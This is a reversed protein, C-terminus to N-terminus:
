TSQKETVSLHGQVKTDVAFLESSSDIGHSSRGIVPWIHCRQYVVIVAVHVRSVHFRFAAHRRVLLTHKRLRWM